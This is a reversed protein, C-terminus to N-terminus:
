NGRTPSPMFIDDSVDAFVISETEALGQAEEPTIYGTQSLTQIINDRDLSLPELLMSPIQSKGNYVFKGASPPPQGLAMNIAAGMAAHALSRSDKFVTMSQLGSMIRKAAEIDADQGSVAVRGEIHHSALAQIVGGATRDNPAIVASIETGNAAIIDEMIAQAADAEWNDISNEAIIRIKGAEDLPKLVNMAGSRFMKSNNDTPAGSLVVYNGYPAKRYIFEAQLEGVRVNDFSIYFDVDEGLVLRDYSIVKVGAAKAKAAISGAARADHPALILVSIDKQLLENCQAAQEDANKDSTEYFLEVGAEDAAELLYELDKNWRTEYKTPFSVGIRLKDQKKSTFLNKVASMPDQGGCGCMFAFSLFLLAFKHLM